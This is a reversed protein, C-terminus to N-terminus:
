MPSDLSGELCNPSSQRIAALHKALFHTRCRISHRPMQGPLTWHPKLAAVSLAWVHKGRVWTSSVFPWIIRSFLCTSHRSAPQRPTRKWKCAISHFSNVPEIKWQGDRSISYCYLQRVRSRMCFFDYKRNRVTLIDHALNEWIWGCPASDTDYERQLALTMFVPDSSFQYTM